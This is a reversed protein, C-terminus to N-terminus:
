RVAEAFPSAENRTKIERTSWKWPDVGKETFLALGIVGVNRTDGYKESAYSDSVSSFKFAAVADESTRFGKITLTKGPNVIYGKNKTSAPRGNIVDLGDVSVVAELRSHCVNKIVLSYTRGDKGEIFRKGGRYYSKLTSAGQKVGWEVLGNASKQLGKRGWRYNGAMAEVGDADNYYIADVKGYPKTSARQFDSYSIKSTKEEGWGTGLGPREAVRSTSMSAKDVPSASPEVRVSQPAPAGAGGSACSYIFLSALGVVGITLIKKIHTKM